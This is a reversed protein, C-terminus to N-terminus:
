NSPRLHVIDGASVAVVQGDVEICLRGQADVSRAMGVIERGGPLLARVASGLTRSRRHYDDVLSSAAGEAARWAGIRAGLAELLQGALLTRDPDQVGLDLLSTVGPESVEHAQLTVNLGIGVVIVSTGPSVEALIGALKGEGAIVDNPWKLGAEVGYVTGVADVVALGTAMPLWGWGETPVTAADVAVSMIIQAFPATSWTRGRRGRGSTQHEAVLVAGDINEGAAARQLLDANTSGTESVVEIRRWPPPLASSLAHQDVPNRRM